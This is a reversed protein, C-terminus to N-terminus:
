LSIDSFMIPQHKSINREVRAGEVQDWHGAPVGKAPRLLIVNELNVKEGAEINKRAYLGRKFKKRGEIENETLMRPAAGMMVCVSECFERLVSLEVPEISINHDADPIKEALTKDITFHKEVVCAGLSVAIQSSTIGISHDSLGAFCGFTKELLGIMALNVDEPRTPYDSVCHLLVLKDNDAQRMVSVIKEVDGLGAMGCSVLVPRGKGAIYRLLPINDNDMSAVKYAAPDFEEVMDVSTFDFPTTILEIGNQKARKFLNRQKDLALGLSKANSYYELSPHFFEKIVFSQLKVFDAGNEHASEIMKWALNEDGGHNVGIEAIVAVRNQPWGKWRPYKYATM